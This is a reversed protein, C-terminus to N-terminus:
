LRMSSHNDIPAHLLPLLKQEIFILFSFMNLSFIPSPELHYSHFYSFSSLYLSTPSHPLNQIIPGFLFSFILHHPTTCMHYHLPPFLYIYIYIYIYIVPLIILSSFSFSCPLSGLGWDRNCVEAVCQPGNLL